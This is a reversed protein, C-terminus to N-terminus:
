RAPSKSPITPRSMKGGRRAVMYANIEDLRDKLVGGANEAHQRLEQAYVDHRIAYIRDRDREDALSITIKMSQKQM